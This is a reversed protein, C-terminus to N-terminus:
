YLGGARNQISMVNAARVRNYGKGKGVRVGGARVVPWTVGRVVRCGQCLSEGAAVVVVGPWATLRASLTVSKRIAETKRRM